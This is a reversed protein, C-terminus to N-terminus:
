FRDTQDTKLKQKQIYHKLFVETINELDTSKIKIPENINIQKNNKDHLYVINFNDESMSVSYCSIWKYKIIQSKLIIGNEYLGINLYRNQLVSSIYIGSVISCLISFLWSPILTNHNYFSIIFVCALGGFLALLILWLDKKTNNNLEKIKFELEGYSNLSKNILKQRVYITIFTLIVYLIIDTVM